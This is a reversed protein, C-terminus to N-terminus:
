SPKRPRHQYIRPTAASISTFIEYPITGAREALEEATIRERGQAGLLTVEEGPCIRPIHSVDITTLDMCVTGLVSARRGRVLVSACNSLNRSYGDAYGLPLTAILRPRRNTVGKGYGIRFGSPLKKIHIIRTKWTLVPALRCKAQLRKEPYAGFLALGPRVMNDNGTNRMLIAGSNSSHTYTPRYGADLFLRATKEFRTRQVNTYERDLSDSLHTMIGEIQLNPFRRLERLFPPVESPLLGLRGMGSDIKVHVPLSPIGRRSVERSLSRAIDARYIVPTLRHRIFLPADPPDLHSLVLIKGRLNGTRLAAGEEPRAVGFFSCGAEALTRATERAGHGYGNAKVVALIQTSPPLVRSIKRFNSALAALNIELWSKGHIQGM